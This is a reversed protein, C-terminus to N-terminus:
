SKRKNDFIQSQNVSKIDSISKNLSALNSYSSKLKSRKELLQRHEWFPFFRQHLRRVEEEDRIGVKHQTFSQSTNIQELPNQM